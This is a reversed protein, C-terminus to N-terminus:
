NQIISNIIISSKIKASNIWINSFIKTALYKSTVFLLSIPRYITETNLTM